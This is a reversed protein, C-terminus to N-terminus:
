HLFPLTTTAETLNIHRSITIKHHHHHPRHSKGRKCPNKSFTQCIMRWRHMLFFFTALQSLQSRTNRSSNHILEDGSLNGCLAQIAAYDAWKLKTPDLTYTHKPTVQQRCKQRFSGPRKHAVTIVRPHFLCRILTLLM